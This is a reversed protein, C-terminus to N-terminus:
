PRRRRVSPVDVCDAVPGPTGRDERASTIGCPAFALAGASDVVDQRFPIGGLGASIRLVAASPTYFRKRLARLQPEAEGVSAIPEAEERAPHRPGLHGSLAERSRICSKSRADAPRM